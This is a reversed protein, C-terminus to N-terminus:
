GPSHQIDQYSGLASRTRAQSIGQELVSDRASALLGMLEDNLHLMVALAESVLESHQPAVAESFCLELDARRNRELEAVEDWDGANAHELMTRTASLVDALRRCQGTAHETSLDQEIRTM